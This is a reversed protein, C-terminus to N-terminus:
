VEMKKVRPKYKLGKRRKRKTQPIYDLSKSLYFGKVSRANNNPNLINTINGYSIKLEKACQTQSEFTYLLVGEKNFAYVTVGKNSPDYHSLYKEYDLYVKKLKKLTCEGYKWYIVGRGKNLEGKKRKVNKLDFHNLMEQRSQFVKYEGTKLDIYEIKNEPNIRKKNLGKNKDSLHNRYTKSLNGNEDEVRLNYGFEKQDAKLAKIWYRERQNLVKIGCYEIAKFEFNEEGYKNWSNQLYSNVHKNYRLKSKHQSFRARINKSLGIYVKGTVINKIRYIGAKM